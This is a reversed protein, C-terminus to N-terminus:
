KAESPAVLRKKLYEALMGQLATLEASVKTRDEREAELSQELVDIRRLLEASRPSIARGGLGGAGRRTSSQCSSTTSSTASAARGPPRLMRKGSKYQPLASSNTSRMTNFTYEQHTIPNSYGLLHSPYFAPRGGPPLPKGPVNPDMPSGSNLEVTATELRRIYANNCIRSSNEKYIRQAMALYGMPDNGEPM